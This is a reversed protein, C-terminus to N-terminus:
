RCKRVFLLPVALNCTHPGTWGAGIDISDSLNVTRYIHIGKEERQLM